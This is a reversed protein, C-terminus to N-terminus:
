KPEARAASGSSRSAGSSGGGCVLLRDSTASGAILGGSWAAAVTAAPLRRGDDEAVVTVGDAGLAVVRTSAVGGPWGYRHLALAFLSPHVAALVRGDAARSLNDPGGPVAIREVPPSASGVLLASLRYVLVARERTAAVYLRDAAPDPLLGNPFGIGDALVRVGDRGRDQDVLGVFGRHLNLVNEVAVAVWGCGGHDGTFLFRDGDLFAVENARCLRPDEVSGRHWLTTGRLTFREVAVVGDWRRNIALVSRSGDAEARLDMGHPRFGSAPRFGSTLEVAEARAGALAALPLLFLGGGAKEPDAGRDYASLVAQGLAEDVVLDEIGVVPRGQAVVAVVRCDAVAKGVGGALLGLALLVRIM